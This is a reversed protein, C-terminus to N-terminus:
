VSVCVCAHVRVCVHVCSHMCACVYERMYARMCVGVWVWVWVCAHVCVYVHPNVVDYRPQLTPLSSETDSGWGSPLTPPRTFTVLVM